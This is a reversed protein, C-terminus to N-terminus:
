PTDAETAAAAREPGPPEEDGPEPQVPSAPEPSVTAPEPKSGAAASEPGPPEDSEPEAIPSDTKPEETKPKDTKPEETKPEETKPEETKPEETKPEETKPEESKPEESKPEDTGKQQTRARRKAVALSAQVGTKVAILDSLIFPEPYERDISDLAKRYIMLDDVIDDATEGDILDPHLSLLQDWLQFGREFHDISDSINTAKYERHGAFTEQRASLMLDTKEAECRQLWYNYNVQNRYSAIRDILIRLDEIEVALRNARTRVEPSAMDAIQNAPIVITEIHFAIEWQEDTRDEPSVDIASLQEPTFDQRRKEVLTERAGPVLEDLEAELKKLQARREDLEDLSYLFGWTSPLTLTGFRKWDEDAVEWQERAVEHPEFDDYLDRAYNIQAMPLHSHFLLPSKKSKRPNKEVVDETYRYWEKSMLWNDGQARDVDIYAPMSNQFDKDERYLQRFQKREDSRGIKQGLYWAIDTLLADNDRNYRTGEILFQIGKKVWLYRQRYDDFEISVNYSLNHAQFQWVSLFNPQLKTIQNLTARLNDHDHKKKFEIAQQWLLNAAVGRLGLTALKMTESAPDIEGLSTQSLQHESRMQALWGGRSGTQTQRVEEPRDDGADTNPAATSRTAPAGLGYLPVLAVGILALYIIKRYFAPTWTM